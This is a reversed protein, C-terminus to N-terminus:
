AVTESTIDACVLELESVLAEASTVDIKSPHVPKIVQGATTVYRTKGVEDGFPAWRLYLPSANRYADNAVKPLDTAGQTYVARIKVTALERKGVTLISTDGEFTQTGEHMREGDDWEILNSAGSVDTWAIADLSFELVANRASLAGTIQAM